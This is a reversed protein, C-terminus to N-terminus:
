FTSCPALKHLNTRWIADAIKVQECFNARFSYIISWHVLPSKKPRGGLSDVCVSSGMMWIPSGPSIWCYIFSVKFSPFDDLCRDISSKGHSKGDDSEGETRPRLGFGVWPRQRLELRLPLQGKSQILDGALRALRRFQLIKPHFKQSDITDIGCIYFM